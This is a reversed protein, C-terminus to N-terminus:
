SLLSRIFKKDEISNKFAIGTNVVPTYNGTIDIILCDFGNFNKNFTTNIIVQSFHIKSKINISCDFLIYIVSDVYEVNGELYFELQNKNCSYLKAKYKYNNVFIDIKCSVIKKGNFYYLYLEKNFPIDCFHENIPFIESLSISLINCLKLLTIADPIIENREYKSITAKTKNLQLAVEALTLRNIKRFMRLSKGININEIDYM